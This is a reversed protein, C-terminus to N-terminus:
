IFPLEDDTDGVEMFGDKKAWADDNLTVAPAKSPPYFKEVRNFENGNNGEVTTILCVGSMGDMKNLDVNMKGKEPVMGVCEAFTRVLFLMKKCIFLNSRLTVTRDATPIELECTVQQTNEPIKKSSGSYYGVEHSAVTFHYDGEPLVEFTNDDLELNNINLEAM